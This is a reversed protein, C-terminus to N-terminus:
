RRGDVLIGEQAPQPGSKSIPGVGSVFNSADPIVQVLQIMEGISPM